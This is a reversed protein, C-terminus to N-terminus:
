TTAPDKEDTTSADPEADHSPRIQFPWAAPLWADTESLEDHPVFPRTLRVVVAVSWGFVALVLINRVTLDILLFLNLRLLDEYLVPYFVQTLGAILPVLFGPVAFSRGHGMSRTAIGLIIPVALWTMYQPSGVKNFAIFASVLALSLPALLEAALAGRQMAVIGLVVVVIVVLGFLPNLLGAAISSGPGTVEFTNIEQDYYPFAGPVHAYSMWMWISSVPSEVQLGRSTQQTVFSFVRTGSGLALAVGVIIASTLIVSVFVKVRARSSILVAAILAAPWVKIWTAITLLVATTRPRSALFLVGVIAIPVSISDIRGLAIPGLVFLFAIWWWGLLPAADWRRRWGVMAAFAGLDLLFVLGLWTAQYNAFGFVSSIIIPILAVIPYVWVKDIGVFYNAFDAQEAWYRYQIVVDGLPLGPDTFNLVGLWLHTLVFASWLVTRSRAIQRVLSRWRSDSRSAGTM